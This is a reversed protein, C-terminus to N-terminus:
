DRRESEIESINIISYVIIPVIIYLVIQHPLNEGFGSVCICLIISKVFNKKKAEVKRLLSQLSISLLIIILTLGFFGFELLLTLYSNHSLYGNFDAVGNSSGMGYGFLWEDTIKEFIFRWQILRWELSNSSTQISSDSLNSGLAEQFRDLLVSSTTLALICFAVIPIFVFRKQLSRKSVLYVFSATLGIAGALSASSVIGVVNGIVLYIRYQKKLDSPQSLLWLISVSYCITAINQWSFLGSYRGMENLNSSGVGVLLINRRLILEIGGIIGSLAIIFNIRFLIKRKVSAQSNQLYKLFSILILFKIVAIVITIAPNNKQIATIIAISALLCTVIQNLPRSASNLGLIISYLWNILLGVCLLTNLIDNTPGVSGLGDLLVRLTILM